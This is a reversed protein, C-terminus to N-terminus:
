PITRDICLKIYWGVGDINLGYEDAQDWTLPVTKHFNDETLIQIAAAIFGHAALYTLPPVLLDLAGGRQVMFSRAAVLQKVEDLPHHPGKTTAARRNL